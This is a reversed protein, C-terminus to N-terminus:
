GSRLPMVLYIFDPKDAVELILPKQEDIYSLSIDGTNKLLADLLYQANVSLTFPAPVEKSFIIDNSSEGIQPSLATITLKSAEFHLKTSFATDRSFLCALRLSQTLAASSMTATAKHQKPIIAEFDPYKGEMIRAIFKFRPSSFVAQTEHFGVEVELSEDDALRELEVLAKRPILYDGEFTGGIKTKYVALRYGDTAVAMLEGKSFRWLCSNLTPQTDTTASAFITQSIIDRLRSSPISFNSSVKVEPTTPYEEAPMGIVSARHNKSTILLSTDKQTLTIKEDSNNQLFELILRAPVTIKGTEENEGEIEVIITHELNTTILRLNKEKVELYVNQLIPLTSRSSILRGVLSLASVINSKEVTLKMERKRCKNVPKLM